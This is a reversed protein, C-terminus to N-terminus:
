PTTPPGSERSMGVVAAFYALGFFASSSLKASEEVMMTLNSRAFSMSDVMTHIVYCVGGTACLPAFGPVRLIEPLFTLCVGIAIIGYLIVILDNWSRFFLPAQDQHDGLKGGVLEHFEMLEDLAFFGFGLASLLWFYNLVRRQSGIRALFFATGAQGAAVALFLASLYTIGGGELFHHHPRIEPADLIALAVAVMLGVCTVLTPKRMSVAAAQQREIRALKLKSVYSQLV